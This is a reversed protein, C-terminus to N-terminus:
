PMASSRRLVDAARTKERPLDVLPSWKDDTYVALMEDPYLVEILLKREEVLPQLDQRSGGSELIGAALQGKEVLIDKEMSLSQMRSVFGIGLGLVLLLSLVTVCQLFLMRDFITKFRIKAM